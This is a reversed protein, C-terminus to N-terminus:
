KRRVPGQRTVAAEQFVRHDELRFATLAGGWVCGTDIGIARDSQYLGLTSWHGFIITRDDPRRAHATFWPEFGAPASNAAGKHHFEMRGGPTCYRMRTLANVILRLRDFGALTDDWADPLSGYMNALFAKFAAGSLAAEVEYALGIAKDSSWHPLLGAHVILHRRTAHLMKRTRLWEILDDRDPANLVEGLTDDARIRGLGYGLSVLHLDHNGLVVTARSGLSRVFRLVELSQPGRNVLDGVFWLQDADGDFKIRDLLRRLEVYCGQVDGIVYTAM